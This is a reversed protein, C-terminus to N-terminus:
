AKRSALDKLEQLEEPEMNKSIWSSYVSNNHLLPETALAPIEKVAHAFTVTGPIPSFEALKPKGGCDRVFRITDKVSKLRQGPLGLLIYTECDNTSYGVNLLNKVASEYENWKVKDSGTRAIETDISELSLRLTVFNTSKLMEACKADIERVHLGNPTHLRISSKYFASIKEFLPYSYAEKNLLLADDYFAFDTAGLNNQMEIEGLVEAINRKYFTPWLINSACYECSLPCGFSTMTVGYTINEYLNMAPYPVDPLWNDTVIYDAALTETHKPCLKAYIGGLIIPTDDFIERTLDIIEKVGGYWYTMLSTLFVVDPKGIALLKKRIEETGLGFRHYRRKIGQYVPPKNIEVSDIRARGYTKIQSSGEHISDLLFVENGNRKLKELLYLLGMPKSWLDAFSFDYVPPNIGIIKQGTLSLIENISKKVNQM